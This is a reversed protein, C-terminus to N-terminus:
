VNDEGKQASRELGEDFKQIDIRVSRGLRVLANFQNACKMLGYRGLKYREKAQELTALKSINDSFQSKRM